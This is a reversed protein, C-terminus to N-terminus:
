WMDFSSRDWGKIGKKPSTTVLWGKPIKTTDVPEKFIDVINDAYKSLEGSQLGLDKEVAAVHAASM